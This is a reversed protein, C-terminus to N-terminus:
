GRKEEMEKMALAMARYDTNTKIRKKLTCIPNNKVQAIEHLRTYIYRLNTNKILQVWGDYKEYNFLISTLENYRSISIETEIKKSSSFHEIKLLGKAYVDPYKKIMEAANQSRKEYYKKEEGPIWSALLVSQVANWKDTGYLENYQKLAKQIMREDEDKSDIYLEDDKRSLSIREKLHNKIYVGITYAEYEMMKDFAGLVLNKYQQATLIFAYSKQTEVTMVRALAIRLEWRNIHAILYMLMCIYRELRLATGIREASQSNMFEVISDTAGKKDRIYQSLMSISEKLTTANLALNIEGPYLKGPIEPYFYNIFYEIRGIRYDAHEFQRIGFRGDFLFELLHVLGKIKSNSALTEYNEVLVLQKNDVTDNSLKVYQMEYLNEYASMDLFHILTVVIFDSINVKEYANHHIYAYQFLNSFRKAHRLTPLMPLVKGAVINWENEPRNEGRVDPYNNIAWLYVRNYLYNKIEETNQKFMPLEYQFYKDTFNSSTDEYGLLKRLVSNVYKKDYATIFITNCFNGNREVLKLVELIETGTLRDLDEIIVYFRKETARIMKNIHEKESEATWNSFWDFINYIWRTPSYLNLAYAYKGVIYTANYSYKRLEQAFEAFFEEQILEVKKAKRPYYKIVIGDSQLKSALLNLLSSKGIGWDGAIGVSYAYQSLDVDKLLKRLDNAIYRYGFLDQEDRTIADDRMDKKQQEIQNALRWRLVQYRIEYVALLIDLAYIVDVWNLVGNGWFYFRRSIFRYYSYVLTIFILITWTMLSPHAKKKFHLYTYAVLGLFLLVYAATIVWTEDLPMLWKRNWAVMWEEIKPLLAMWVVGGGTLASFCGFAEEISVKKVEDILFYFFYKCKTIKPHM